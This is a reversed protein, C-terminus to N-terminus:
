PRPPPAPRSQSRPGCAKGGPHHEQEPSGLLGSALERRSIVEGLYLWGLWYLFLERFESYNSRLGENNPMGHDALLRAVTSALLGM